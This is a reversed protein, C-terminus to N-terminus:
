DKLLEKAVIMRMIENTGSLIKHVRLDRLYQQVKYDKLYGYGGHLQVAENCVNYCSDSAYVKAMASWAGAQPHNADIMRAAQRTMLRSSSLAIAMEALKFKVAQNAVLPKNFQKRVSVYEQTTELAAQAGGISCSAINIRTGYLAKMAIAFGQGEAGILHSVPVECDSFQMTATPQSNWGVKEEKKGWTLGPADADVLLCSIGEPGPGGTRVLVIYVDCAGGGSIFAKSGNLIYKDGKRKATTSLSAADSGSDPETLCYAALKECSALIPVYEERLQKTGYTDIIWACMNHLTLYAVTSVCGTSLAEFVLASDLRSLGGGGLEEKCYMASFGLEATKKLTEVPFHCTADWKQMYPALEKDAFARAAAMYEKQDDTLGET